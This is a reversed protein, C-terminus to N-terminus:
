RRNRQWGFQPEYGLVRRAKDICLLTENEHFVRRTPVGPFQEAVLDTTSRSMVTDANAIVFTDLGTNDRELAKRVAQAGDRSDIYAWLNWRRLTPDTDYEPFREYDGEDLVNSFRLATLSLDPNWRALETAMTEELHKALSYSSEPRAPYNEDVPLYPPPTTFPIGLLTESSAWVVKKVGARIAATFVNYTTMLNNEFTESDTALGPGPIAALHVVADVRRYRSDVSSMADTAQGLDRLDAIVTPASSDTPRIRDISTVKWGHRQLDAVVARGLKGSGGTVVVRGTM